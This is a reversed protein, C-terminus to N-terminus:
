LFKSRGGGTGRGEASLQQDICHVPLMKSIYSPLRRQRSVEDPVDNTSSNETDGFIPSNDSFTKHSMLILGGDYLRRIPNKRDLDHAVSAVVCDPCLQILALFIMMQLM